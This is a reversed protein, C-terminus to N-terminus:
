GDLWKGMTLEDVYRDGLKMSAPHNGEPQYGMKKYLGVAANNEAIATLYLRRVGNKRAWNELETMLQTGTGMGGFERLIGIVIYARHWVKRYPMRRIELYGALRNNAVLGQSHRHGSRAYEALLVTGADRNQQGAIKKRWQTVDVPREGEEYLLYDTERDLQQMLTILAPADDPEIERIRIM